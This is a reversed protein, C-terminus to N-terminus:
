GARPSELEDLPVPSQKGFYTKYVEHIFVSGMGIVVGTLVIGWPTIELLILGADTEGALFVRLQAFLYFLDFKWIWASFIGFIVAMLQIFGSRFSGAKGTQQNPLLLNSLGPFIGVLLNAVTGFLFEVGREIIFSALLIEGLMVLVHSIAQGPTIVAAAPMLLLMEFM